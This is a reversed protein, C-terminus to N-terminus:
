LNTFDYLLDYDEESMQTLYAKRHAEAYSDCIVSDYESIDNPYLVLEAELIHNGASSPAIFAHFISKDFDTKMKHTIALIEM